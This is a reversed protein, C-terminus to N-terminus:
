NATKRKKYYVLLGVAVAVVVAAAIALAVPLTPFPDPQPEPSQTSEPSPSPTPTMPAETQVTFTVNSYTDIYYYQEVGWSMPNSEDYQSNYYSCSHVRIQF